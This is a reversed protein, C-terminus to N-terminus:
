RGLIALLWRRVWHRREYEELLKFFQEPPFRGAEVEALLRVIEGRNLAARAEELNVPPQLTSPNNETTVVDV